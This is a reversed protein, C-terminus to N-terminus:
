TKAPSHHRRAMLSVPLGICLMLIGMEIAARGPNFPGKPTRTLPVLVLNMMVWVFAGYVVATVVVNGAYKRVRPYVVYFLATWSMAIAFHMLIGCVAMPWGGAYATDRGFLASAIYYAIKVPETGGHAAYNVVAATGDCLGAVLGTLLIARATSTPPTAPTPSETM